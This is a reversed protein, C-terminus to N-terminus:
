VEIIDGLLSLIGIVDGFLVRYFVYKNKKKKGFLYKDEFYSGYKVM